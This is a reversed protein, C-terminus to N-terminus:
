VTVSNTKKLLCWQLLPGLTPLSKGAPTPVPSAQAPLPIDPPQHPQILHRPCSPLFESVDCLGFWGSAPSESTKPRLFWFCSTAVFQGSFPEPFPLPKKQARPHFGSIQSWAHGDPFDILHDLLSASYVTLCVLDQRQSSLQSPSVCKPTRPM